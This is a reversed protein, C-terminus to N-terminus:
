NEDSIPASISKGERGQAKITEASSMWMCQVSPRIGALMILVNRDLRLNLVSPLELFYYAALHLQCSCSYSMPQRNFMFRKRWKTQAFRNWYQRWVHKYCSALLTNKRLSVAPSCFRWVLEQGFSLFVNKEIKKKLVAVLHPEVQHLVASVKEHGPGQSSIFSCTLKWGLITILFFILATLYKRERKGARKENKCIERNWLVSAPSNLFWYHALEEWTRLAM